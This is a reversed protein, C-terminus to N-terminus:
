LDSYRKVFDQLSKRNEAELSTFQVGMGPNSEKPGPKQVWMVVGEVMITEKSDPVTFILEIREGVDQPSKSAIFLGGVGLDKCFDFFFNGDSNYDVLLEINIREGTVRKENSM